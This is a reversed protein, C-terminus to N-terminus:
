VSSLTRWTQRAIDQAKSNGFEEIFWFLQCEPETTSFTSRMDLDQTWNGGKFIVIVPMFLFLTWPMLTTFSSSQTPLRLSWALFSNGIDQYYLVKEIPFLLPSVYLSTVYYTLASYLVCFSSTVSQTFGHMSCLIPTLWWLARQTDHYCAIQNNKRPKKVHRM